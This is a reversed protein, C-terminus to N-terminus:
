CFPAEMRAGGGSEPFRHVLSISLSCRLEAPTWGATPGRVGVRRLLPPVHLRPGLGSTDGVQNSMSGSCRSQGPRVRIDLCPFLGTKKGVGRELTWTMEPALLAWSSFEAVLCLQGARGCTWGPVIAWGTAQQGDGTRLHSM